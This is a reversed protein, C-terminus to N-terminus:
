AEGGHQLIEYHPDFIVSRHAQQSVTGEVRLTVGANVGPVTRQGHWVLHVRHGAEDDLVAEYYPPAGIPQITVSELSGTLTVRHPNEVAAQEAM